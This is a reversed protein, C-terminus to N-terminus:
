GKGEWLMRGLALAQATAAGQLQIRLKRGAGDEAELICESVEAAGRWPLEVFASGERFAPAPVAAPLWKKLKTANLRLRRATAHVGHVSAAKAAM